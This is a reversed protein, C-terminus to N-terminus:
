SAAPAPTSAPVPLPLPLTQALVQGARDERWTRLRERVEPRHLGVIEAALIAANIAGARGIALTGVPVGAPMQVISLLADMGQLATAPVPVGLVPVLTKAAVMGPLHAAGGAAAVIVHLGRVEAEEAYRFMWDPTRHASVVRAEYPVGLEALLACAPELHPYDSSSGMIVGVLPSTAAPDAAPIPESSPM